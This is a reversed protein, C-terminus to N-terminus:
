WTVYYTAFQAIDVSYKSLKAAIVAFTLAKADASVKDEISM